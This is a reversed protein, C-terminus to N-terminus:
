YVATSALGCTAGALSSGLRIRWCWAFSGVTRNTEPYHPSVAHVLFSCGMGPKPVQPDV